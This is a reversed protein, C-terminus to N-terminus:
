PAHRTRNRGPRHSLLAVELQARITLSCVRYCLILFNNHTLRFFLFVFRQHEVGEVCQKVLPVVGGSLLIPRRVIDLVARVDFRTTISEEIQDPACRIRQTVFMLEDDCLAVVDMTCPRKEPIPRGTAQTAASITLISFPRRASCQSTKCSSAVFASDFLPMGINPSRKVAQILKDM